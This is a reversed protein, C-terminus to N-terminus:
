SFPNMERLEARIAAGMLRAHALQGLFYDTGDLRAWVPFPSQGPLQVTGGAVTEIEDMTLERM